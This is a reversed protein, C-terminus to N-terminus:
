RIIKKILNRPKRNNVQHAIRPRNFCLKHELKTEQIGPEMCNLATEIEEATMTTSIGTNLAVQMVADQLQEMSTGFAEAIHMLAIAVREANMSTQLGTNVAADKIERDLENM